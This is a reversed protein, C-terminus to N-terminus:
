ASGALRDYLMGVDELARFSDNLHTCTSPGVFSRRVARRLGDISM